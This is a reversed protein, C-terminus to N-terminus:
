YWSSLNIRPLVWASTTHQILVTHCQEHLVSTVFVSVWYLL